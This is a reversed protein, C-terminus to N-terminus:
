KCNIVSKLVINIPLTPQFNRYSFLSNGLKAVPFMDFKIGKLMNMKGKGPTNWHKHGFFLFTALRQFGLLLMKPDFSSFIYSAELRLRFIVTRGFFISKLFAFGRTSDM